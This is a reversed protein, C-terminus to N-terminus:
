RSLMGFFQSTLSVSLFFILIGAVVLSLLFYVLWVLLAKDWDLEYNKKILGASLLIGVLVWSSVAMPLRINAVEGIYISFVLGIFGTALTILFAKKYGQEALKFMKTTLMLLLANLPIMIITIVILFIINNQPM